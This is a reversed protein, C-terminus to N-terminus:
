MPIEYASFVRDSLLLILRASGKKSSRRSLADAGMLTRVLGDYTTPFRVAELDQFSSDFLKELILSLFIFGLNGHFLYTCIVSVPSSALLFFTERVAPQGACWINGLCPVCPMNTQAVNEPPKPRISRIPTPRISTLNRHGATDSNQFLGM